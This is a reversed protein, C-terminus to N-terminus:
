CGPDLWYHQHYALLSAQLHELQRGIEYWLVIPFCCWQINYAQTNAQEIRINYPCVPLRTRIAHLYWCSSFKLQNKKGKEGNGKNSMISLPSPYLPNDTNKYALIIWMRSSPRLYPKAQAKKEAMTTTTTTRTKNQHAEIPQLLVQLLVSGTAIPNPSYMLVLLFCFVLSPLVFNAVLRVTGWIVSLYAKKIEERVGSYVGDRNEPQIPMTKLMPIPTNLDLKLCAAVEAMQNKIKEPQTVNCIWIWSCPWSLM